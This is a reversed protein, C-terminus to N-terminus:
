IPALPAIVRALRFLDVVTALSFLYIHLDAVLFEFADLIVDFDGVVM